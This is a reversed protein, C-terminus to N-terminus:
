KVVTSDFGRKALDKKIRGAEDTNDYPGVRVRYRVGKDPITAMQVTAELGALALQAKLNEADGQGAFSGVQLWIREGSRQAHAPDVAKDQAKNAVPAREDKATKDQAARDAAAKDPAARDPKTQVKPDETGPLIKYFDFRPKTDAPAEAPRAAKGQDRAPERPAQDRPAQDRTGQTVAPQYPNGTRMVYYAAGAALAVGIIVGILVGLLTGGFGRRNTAQHSMGPRTPRSASTSRSM